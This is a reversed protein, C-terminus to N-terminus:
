QLRNKDRTGKTPVASWPDDPWPHKPYRGRLERKVQQYAKDWFGKLDQTIQVPRGAPSLLHLLIGVRGRAIAPTEALGFMEQLKVALVPAEGLCYDLMVRRGSPVTISLPACQELLYLQERSLLARLAPMLNLRSIDQVTRTDGLYPALWDESTSTLRENSLDPWGEEPFTRGMLLVRHQFQREEKGFVLLQPSSRLVECLVPVTEDDSPMFPKTSLIVAGIREETAATIKGQREDWQVHKETEIRSGCEQRIIEESLAAAIYVTGESKEGADVTVAVIFRSQGLGSKSSLKVGRGQSLVFRGDQEDRSRGIRDPFASLLLRGIADPNIAHKKPKQKSPLIRLVQRAVRDVNRVAMLDVEDPVRSDKRWEWLIDLRAAIDAERTDGSRVTMKRFIDRESLLAALDAGIDPIGLEAARLILRGLRPHVPLLAMKRGARTIAGSSDIANLNALLKKATQWGATPPLDLWSLSSPDKVGWAALDLVLSSLDSVLIEPPTFAAMAQFAARSYLRYCIGPGLRGARGKRQEASARSVTVTQLRNMGTSPDYRLSRALGTDVVIRVGEITLSTEAINTALVVKRMQMPLIAQEQEKFPLDGYLPHLSLDGKGKTLPLLEEACTRIEGAGPLFVLIDGETERLAARVVAAVRAALQGEQKIEPYREEVPYQKGTSSIVPADGLLSAVKVCDLTASMILLKLDERFGRRIDLCLALALDAHISREHFEDFIVLSIGELGPNKQIRRTLIGETVVEIRTRPSLRSEFRISYGVTNGVEESLLHAMWRAASVAAIRRPEQIVIRGNEPAIADLLALPIHTTKGAGPPAHLVAVNHIQLAKKLDPVIEDVPYNKL